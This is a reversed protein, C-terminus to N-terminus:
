KGGTILLNKEMSFDFTKVGKNVIFVTENSNLPRRKVKDSSSSSTVMTSSQVLANASQYNQATKRTDQTAASAPLTVTVTNTENKNNQHTNSTINSYNDTHSMASNPVNNNNLPHTNASNQTAASNPLVNNTTATGPTTGSIETSPLICGIVLANAEDNSCTIVQSIRLEIRIQEVWDNHVKWRIYTITKSELAKTLHIGPMQSVIPSAKWLRSYFIIKLYLCLNKEVMIKV